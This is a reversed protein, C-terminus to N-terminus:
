PRAPFFGTTTAFFGMNPNKPVVATEKKLQRVEAELDTVKIILEGNRRKLLKNDESIQKSLSDSDLSKLRSVQERLDNNEDLLIEMQRLEIKMRENEKYVEDFYKQDLKKQLQVKDAQL